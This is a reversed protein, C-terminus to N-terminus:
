KNSVFNMSNIANDNFEQLKKTSLNHKIYYNVTKMVDELSQDVVEKIYQEKVLKIQKELRSNHLNEIATVQSKKAEEISLIAQETELKIRDILGKVSAFEAEQNELIQLTEEYLDAVERVQRSIMHSREDLQHKAKRIVPVGAGLIFIVFSVLVWIQPDTWNITM